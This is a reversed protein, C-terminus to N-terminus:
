QGRSDMCEEEENNEADFTDMREEKGCKQTRKSVQSALFNSCLSMRQSVPWQAGRLNTEEM